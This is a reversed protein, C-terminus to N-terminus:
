THESKFGFEQFLSICVDGPTKYEKYFSWKRLAESKKINEELDYDDDNKLDLNVSIMDNDIWVIIDQKSLGLSACLDELEKM